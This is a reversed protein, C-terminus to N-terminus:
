PKAVPEIRTILMKGGQVDVVFRVADGPKLGDLLKGDAVPFVMAMPPMDIVKIYEHKLTLKPNPAEKKREEGKTWDDAHAPPANLAATALTFHLHKRM